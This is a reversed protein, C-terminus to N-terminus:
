PARGHLSPRHGLVTRQVAPAVSNFQDARGHMDAARGTCDHVAWASGTNGPLGASCPRASGLARGHVQTLVAAEEKWCCNQGNEM